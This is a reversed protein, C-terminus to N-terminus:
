RRSLRPGTTNFFLLVALFVLCVAGAIKVLMPTRQWASSRRRRKPLAPTGFPDQQSLEPGNAM